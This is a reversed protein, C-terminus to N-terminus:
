LTVGLDNAFKKLLYPSTLHEKLIQEVKLFDTDKNIFMRHKGATIYVGNENRSKDLVYHTLYSHKTKLVQKIYEM